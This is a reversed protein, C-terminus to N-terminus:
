KYFRLRHTFGITEELSPESMVDESDISLYHIIFSGDSFKSEISWDCLSQFYDQIMQFHGDKIQNEMEKKTVSLNFSGIQMIKIDIYKENEDVIAEIIIKDYQKRAKETLQEFIIKLGYTFNEVDTYFSIGDLNKYEVEFDFKLIKRKLDAFL